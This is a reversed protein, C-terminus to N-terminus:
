IKDISSAEGQVGKFEDRPYSYEKSCFECKMSIQGDIEMYDLDEVSMMGLMSVVKEANCRCFKEVGHGSFVRVGEEHFLRMLLVNSHLAADLLEDETASEMLIMARRWDDADLNSKSELGRGGEQPIRQLMVGGGRWKDDRQGIAMKIGTDIQESQNFYHQVCDVLSAGRLEVIGQYPQANEGQEVTFVIYGKGLYQALHNRSSEEAKLGALQQRAHELREEDFHACARVRGDSMVDAVLLSVPGDGRIQLTFLGEYKLMSSLLLALTMNEAVLHAIPNPYDHPKLIEDLTPGLRVCRGRLSSEDLQFPQIVDDDAVDLDTIPNIFDDDYSDSFDDM